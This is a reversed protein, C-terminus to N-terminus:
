RYGFLIFRFANILRDRNAILPNDNMGFKFADEWAEERDPIRLGMTMEVQYGPIAALSIAHSTSICPPRARSFTGSALFWGM